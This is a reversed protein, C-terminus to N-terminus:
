NQPAGQNIWADVKALDCASLKNGGQPMPAAGSEHNIAKRLIGSNVASRLGDYTSTVINGAPSAESHCGNCNSAMLPAVSNGYTVGTTDCPVGSGPYLEEENDYYCSTLLSATLVFILMKVAKLPMRNNKRCEM